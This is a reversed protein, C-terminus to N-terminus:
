TTAVKRPVPYADAHARMVRGRWVVRDGAYSALLVAVSMVDRLPLLWVPAAAPRRDRRRLLAADIGHALTARAVWAGLGVALAWEEGGSLLLALLAWALPFQVASFAFQVPALSRITRGWRLEHGLLDRMTAEAVTTAPVTTALRVALGRERVLRGLANDDALHHLLSAFGGIAGLTDRRLAMTAGLCDQRGLARALLAGPLFGHTISTAGLAAVASTTAPLGSYLTTVLGTGPQELAAVLSSLYDPAVHIDSDAIVLVDHKAAPLMNILNAVKRNAGDASNDVLVLVDRDPFRNRVREAVARAPDNPDQVGFIVQFRPYDQACVSALAQELLPEDGYLPKLVTVAPLHKAAPMPRARFRRVAVYGALAQAVGVGALAAAIWALVLM